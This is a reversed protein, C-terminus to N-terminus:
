DAETPPRDSMIWSRSATSIWTNVHGLADDPVYGAQLDRSALSRGSVLRAAESTEGKILVPCVDMKRQTKNARLTDVVEDAIRPSAVILPQARTLAFVPLLERISAVEDGIVLVRANDWVAWGTVSDTAFEPLPYGGAISPAQKLVTQLETRREVDLDTTSSGLPARRSEAETLYAPSPDEASLSPIDRAPPQQLLHRRRNAVVTDRRYASWLALAGVASFIVLGIQWGEM